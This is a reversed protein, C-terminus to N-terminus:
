SSDDPKTEARPRRRRKVVPVELDAPASLVGRGLWWGGDLTIVEGTVYAAYDSVLWAAAQAVEDHGAFRGLPVSRRM